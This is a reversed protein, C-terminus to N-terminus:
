VGGFRRDRKQFDRIAEYLHDRSFDPWLVPTFWWESYAAEWLLFNSLRQEGSTRIVLDPEPMDPYQFRSSISGETLRGRLKGADHDAIVKKVADLIETRGGYNFAVTLTLDRNHRTLREADEVETILRKPLRWDRRGMFRIRVGMDHMQDRRANLTMRNFNLLFKVETPPRNWNETSFAYVTLWRVGIELCGQVVDFLVQEGKVHGETRPLGQEKAWRGNGDMIIAIHQPVRARDIDSLYSM